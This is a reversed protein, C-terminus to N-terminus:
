PILELAPLFTPEQEVVRRVTIDGIRIIDPMTPNENMSMRVANLPGRVGTSAAAATSGSGRKAQSPSWLAHDYATLGGERIRGGCRVQPRNKSTPHPGRRCVLFRSLNM